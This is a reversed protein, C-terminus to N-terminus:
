VYNCSILENIEFFDDLRTKYVLKIQKHTILAPFIVPGLSDYDKKFWVFKELKSIGSDTFVRLTVEVQDIIPKHEQGITNFEVITGQITKTNKVM